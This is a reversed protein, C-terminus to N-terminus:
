GGPQNSFGLQLVQFDTLATGSDFTIKKKLNYTFTIARLTGGAPEAIKVVKRAIMRLSHGYVYGDRTTYFDGNANPDTFRYAAFEARIGEPPTTGPSTDTGNFSCVISMSNLKQDKKRPPVAELDKLIKFDFRLKRANIICCNVSESGQQGASWGSHWLYSGPHYNVDPSGFQDVSPVEMDFSMDSGSGPPLEIANSGGPGDYPENRFHKNDPNGSIFTPPVLRGVTIPAYRADAQESFVSIDTRAGPTTRKFVCPWHPAGSGSPLGVGTRIVVVDAVSPWGVERITTYPDLRVPKENSGYATTEAV